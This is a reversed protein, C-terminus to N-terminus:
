GLQMPTHPIGDELYGPGDPEFGLRRYFPIAYDQAGIRIPVGSSWRARVERIAVEMLRLGAGSGRVRASTIVRGISAADPHSDPYATGPALLRAYAELAGGPAEGLLHLSGADKGDLDQYPCDQEVIFVEVRLHMIRYLEHVGLEDFSAVRFSLDTMGGKM